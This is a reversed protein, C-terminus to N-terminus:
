SGTGGSGPPPTIAGAGTRSLSRRLGPAYAATLWVEGERVGCAARPDVDSGPLARPRLRRGRHPLAGRARQLRILTREANLVRGKKWAMRAFDHHPCANRWGSVEDGRRVVFMTDRGEGLPDFGTSDGDVLNDLRCLPLDPVQPPM